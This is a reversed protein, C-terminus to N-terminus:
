QNAKRGIEILVWSSSIPDPLKQEITFTVDEVGAARLASELRRASTEVEPRLRDVMIRIGIPPPEGADMYYRTMGVSDWGAEKLVTQLQGGYRACEESDAWATVRFQAEPKDKLTKSVIDIQSTTLTRPAKLSAVRQGITYFTAAGLLTILGVVVGTLRLTREWGELCSISNWCSQFDM